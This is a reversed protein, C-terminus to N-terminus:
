RNGDWVIVQYRYSIMEGLVMGSPPDCDERLIVCGWVQGCNWAVLLTRKKYTSGVIAWPQSDQHVVYTGTDNLM